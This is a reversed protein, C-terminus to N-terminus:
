REGVAVRILLTLIPDEESKGVAPSFKVSVHKTILSIGVTICHIPGFLSSVFGLRDSCIIFPLKLIENRGKCM